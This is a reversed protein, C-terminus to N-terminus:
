RFQIDQPAWTEVDVGELAVRERSFQTAETVSCGERKAMALAAALRHVLWTRWSDRQSSGGFRVPDKPPDCGWALLPCEMTGAFPLAHPQRPALVPALRRAAADLSERSNFYAVFKDPRRLAYRDAGVKVTYAGQEGCTVLCDRFVAPLEEAYVCVYLKFPSDIERRRRGVSWSLWSANDVSFPNEVFAEGPPSSEQGIGLFELTSLRDVPLGPRDIFAPVRNYFYLRGALEGEHDIPLTAAYLLARSSISSEDSRREPAISASVEPGSRFEGAVELELVRDFILQWLHRDFREHNRWFYAPVCGARQLTLFLLADGDSLSKVHLDSDDAPILLGFFDAEQSISSIGVFGGHASDAGTRLVYRPNARLRATALDIAPHATM